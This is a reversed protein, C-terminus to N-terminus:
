IHVDLYLHIENNIKLLDRSFQNSTLCVFCSFNWLYFIRIELDELRAVHKWANLSFSLLLCFGVSQVYRWSPFIYFIWFIRNERVNPVHFLKRNIQTTLYLNGCFDTTMWGYNDIGDPFVYLLFAYRPCSYTM